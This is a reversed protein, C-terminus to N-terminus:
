TRDRSRSRQRLVQQAPAEQAGAAASSNGTVASPATATASAAATAASTSSEVAAAPAAVPAPASAAAGENASATPVPASSAVAATAVPADARRETTPRDRSRSRERLGPRATAGQAAAPTPDTATAAASPATATARAAPTSSAVASIASAAPAPASSAVATSAPAVAASAVPANAKREAQAKVRFVSIIEHFGAEIMTRDIGDEASAEVMLGTLEKMPIKRETYRLAFAIASWTACRRSFRLPLLGMFGDTLFTRSGTRIRDRLASAKNVPTEGADECEKRFTTSTSSLKVLAKEVLEDIEDCPLWIDTEFKTLRLLYIEIESAQQRLEKKEEETMGQQGKLARQRDLELYMTVGRPKEDYMKCALRASAIAVAGRADWHKMSQYMFFLQLYYCGLIQVHQSECNEEGRRAKFVDRILERVIQCAVYREIKEDDGSFGDKISPTDNIQEKTWRLPPQMLDKKLPNKAVAM